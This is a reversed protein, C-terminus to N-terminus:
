SLYNSLRKGPLKCSWLMIPVHKILTHCRCSRHTVGAKNTHSVQM